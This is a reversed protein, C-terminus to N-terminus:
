SYLLTFIPIVSFNNEIITTVDLKNLYTKFFEQM